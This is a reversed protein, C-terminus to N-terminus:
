CTGEKLWDAVLQCTEPRLLWHTFMQWSYKVHPVNEVFYKQAWFFFEDWDVKEVMKDKLDLLDNGTTFTRNHGHNASVKCKRCILSSGTFYDWEHFCEWLYETLLIKDGETM